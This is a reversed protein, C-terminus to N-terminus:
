RVLHVCGGFMTLRWGLVVFSEVYELAFSPIWRWHCVGKVGWGYVVGRAGFVDVCVWGWM